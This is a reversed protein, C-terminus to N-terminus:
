IASQNGKTPCVPKGKRNKKQSCSIHMDWTDSLSDKFLYCSELADLCSIEAECHIQALKHRIGGVNAQNFNPLFSNNEKPENELTISFM